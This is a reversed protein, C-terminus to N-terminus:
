RGPWNQVWWGERVIRQLQDVFEDRAKETVHKRSALWLFEGEQEVGIVARDGPLSDRLEMRFEAQPAPINAEKDRQEEGDEDAM